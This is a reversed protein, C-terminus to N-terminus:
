GLLAIMEELLTDVVSIYRAAGQYSREFKVLQIAEEDLNVGSISERQAQLADRVTESASLEENTAEAVSAVDYVIANYFETISQGGLLSSGNTDLEALRGANSGDGPMFAQAAALRTSDAALEEDVAIDRADRGTFFTNVGLAALAGSTDAQAEQGDHGFSFTYGDDATIELRNDITVAATVGSVNANIQEVLSELTTDDDAGTLSVDIRHGVPTETADDTVTIFFSGNGPPQALGTAASSLAVDTADLAYAGTISTFGEMGQGDAHLGNVEYILAAALEDIDAVRGYADVDRAQMLGELKGGTIPVEGGNDAFRVVTRAFGDETTAETTLGRSYSGQVLAESGLYVNVAGDPQTRVTVDFLEALDRIRADRQDRLGTAQGRGRAEAQTIGQNLEAITTALENAQEVVGPILGDTDSGVQMLQSRLGTLSGALQEAQAIVLDRTATDEPSNRLDDLTGFFDSLQSQIGQGDLDNFYVEVQSLVEQRSSAAEVDAIGLRLRNELAEDVYRQIASLTVGAGPQLGDQNVQGALPDLEPRLRTYDEDAASSINSGVVQLASQYSLLANRGLSLASNLLGM